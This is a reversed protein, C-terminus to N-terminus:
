PLRSNVAFFLREVTVRFGQKSYNVVHVDRNALEPDLHKVVERHAWDGIRKKRPFGLMMEILRRNNFPVTTEWCMDFESLVAGGWAPFRHEWYVMDADDVGPIGGFRVRGMWDAFAHDIRRLMGRDFFIRKYLISMQRPTLPSPLREMGLRKSFNSRAIESVWSKVDVECAPNQAFYALKRLDNAANARVYAANHRVIAAFEQYGPISEDDEPIRYSSHDLSLHRALERAAELDHAEEQSSAFTFFKLRSRCSVAAALTTQSDTGGTLSVAPRAWKESTIELSAKLLEAIRAIRAAQEEETGGEVLPRSPYFRDVSFGTSRCRLTTNPGFRRVESFPSLDGPLFRIGIKFEWSEVLERIWPTMELNCVDALLQAHSSLYFEGQVHGYFLTRMGACDQVALLEDERLVVVVFRGTWESVVRHFDQESQELATAADVLLSSEEMVGTFPNYAHGILLIHLGNVSHCYHTTERHTLLWWPGIQARAWNGYFPFEEGAELDGTTLLYGRAFLARQYTKDTLQRVDITAAPASNSM